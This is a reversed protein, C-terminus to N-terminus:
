SVLVGRLDCGCTGWFDCTDVKRYILKYLLIGGRRLMIIEGDRRIVAMTIERYTGKSGGDRDKNVQRETERDIKKDIRREM